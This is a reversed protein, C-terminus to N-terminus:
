IQFGITRRQVLKFCLLFFTKKYKKTNNKGVPFGTFDQLPKEQYIM